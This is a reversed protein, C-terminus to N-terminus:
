SLSKISMKECHFVEAHGAILLQVIDVRIFCILYNIVIYQRSRCERTWSYSNPPKSRNNFISKANRIHCIISTM